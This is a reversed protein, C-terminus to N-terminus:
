HTTGWYLKFNLGLSKGRCVIAGLSETGNARELPLRESKDLSQERTQFERM